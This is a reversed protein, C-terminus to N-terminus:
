DSLLSFWVQVPFILLNFFLVARPIIHLRRRAGLYMCCLVFIANLVFALLLGLIALTGEVVPLPIVAEHGKGERPIMEILRLVAALVFCLNCIFVIKSFFRM